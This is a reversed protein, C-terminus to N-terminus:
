RQFIHRDGMRMVGERPLSTLDDADAPTNIWIKNDAQAIARMCRNGHAPRVSAHLWGGSLRGVTVGEGQQVELSATLDDVKDIVEALLSAAGLKSSGWARTGGV